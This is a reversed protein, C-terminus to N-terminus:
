DNKKKGGKEDEKDRQQARQERDATTEQTVSNVENPEDGAEISEALFRGDVTVATVTVCDVLVANLTDAVIWGTEVTVREDASTHLTITTDTREVVCGRFTARDSAEGPSALFVLTATVSLAGAAFARTAHNISWIM